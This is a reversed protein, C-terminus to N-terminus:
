VDLFQASDTCIEFHAHQPKARKCTTKIQQEGLSVCMLASGFMLACIRLFIYQGRLSNRASGASEIDTERRTRIAETPFANQSRIPLQSHVAANRRSRSGRPRSPSQHMIVAVLENQVSALFQHQSWCLGSDGFSEGFNTGSQRTAGFPSGSTTDQKLMACGGHRWEALVKWFPVSNVLPAHKRAYASANLSQM